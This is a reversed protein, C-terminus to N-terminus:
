MYKRSLMVLAGPPQIVYGSSTVPMQKHEPKECGGGSNTPTAKM